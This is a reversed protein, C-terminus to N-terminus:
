HDGLLRAYEATILAYCECAADELGPRDLVAVEGRRYAILGAAQLTGLALTVSPRRVGLMYGLFEHTLLLWRACREEVPHLRNCAASQAALTYLAQSFRHLLTYLTSGPAAADRLVAVPLRLFDGPVQAITELPGGDAGHFAALGVLGERGVTGVEVLAGDATAAVISACGTLPFYVERIPAFPAYITDGGGLRIAAFLRRSLGPPPTPVAGSRRRGTISGRRPGHRSGRWVGYRSRRPAGGCHAPSPVTRAQTSPM